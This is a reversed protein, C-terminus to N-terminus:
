TLRVLRRATRQQWSANAPSRNCCPPSQRTCPCPSCIARAGGGLQGHFLGDPGAVQSAFVAPCDGGSAGGGSALVTFPQRHVTYRTRSSSPSLTLTHTHTSTPTLQFSRFSFFFFFAMPSSVFLGLLLVRPHSALLDRSAMWLVGLASSPLMSGFRLELLSQKLLYYFERSAPKTMRCCVEFSCFGLVQQWVEMPLMCLLHRQLSFLMVSM